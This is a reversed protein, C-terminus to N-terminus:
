RKIWAWAQAGPVTMIMVHLNEQTKTIKVGNAEWHKDGGAEWAHKYINVWNFFIRLHRVQLMTRQASLDVRSLM